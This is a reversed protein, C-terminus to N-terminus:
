RELADWFPEDDGSVNDENLIDTGRRHEEHILVLQQFAIKFDEADILNIYDAATKGLEDPRHLLSHTSQWRSLVELVDPSKSKAALIMINEGSPDCGYHDAGYQLLVNLVKYSKQWVSTVLPTRQLHGVAEIDAGRELLLRAVKDNDCLCALMLPTHGHGNRANVDLNYDPHMLLSTLAPDPHVAALDLVGRGWRTVLTVNGGHQLLLSVLSVSGVTVAELLPTVHCNDPLNPDAGNELLAKSAEINKLAVAWWLPSRGGTDVEDIEHKCFKVIAEIDGPWYGLIVKHIHNMGGDDLDHIRPIVEQLWKSMPTKPNRLVMLRAHQLATGSYRDEIAVDAGAKLLLNVAAKSQNAIAFLLSMNSESM